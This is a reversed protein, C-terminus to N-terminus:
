PTRDTAPGMTKERALKDKVDPGAMLNVHCELCRTQSEMKAHDVVLADLATEEPKHCTMCAENKIRGRSRIVREQQNATWAELSNDAVLHYYVDKAAHFKGGLSNLLGPPVHCDVCEATSSGSPNYHSSHQWALYTSRM